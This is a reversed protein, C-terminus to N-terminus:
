TGAKYNALLVLAPRAVVLRFPLQTMFYLFPVEAFNTRISMMHYAEKDRQGLPYPSLM